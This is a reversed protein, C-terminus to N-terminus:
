RPPVDGDDPLPGVVDSYEPLLARVAFRGGIADAPLVEVARVVPHNVVSRLRGVSGRVVLGVVCDCGAALSTASAADIRAQRDWQGTTGHLRTAALDQAQLVSEETGPVGVTVVPTQVRDIPVRLVVQAIRTGGIADFALQPSVASDFSVLSWRPVSDADEVLSREARSIYEQVLEGSDPGLRDTGVGRSPLPNSFGVAACFALAVVALAGAEAIGRYRRVLGLVGTM